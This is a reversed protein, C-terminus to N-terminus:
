GAGAAAAYRDLYAETVAARDFRQVRALAASRLRLQEAEDSLIGVLAATLAPVDGPPVWRAADGAAFVFGPLSSAVVACQAALAEVVTIGFSEGGINPACFVSSRTLLTRKHNESVRGHFAVGEPANPVEDAGIVHLSADPNAAAVEPWAELLIGLGKRPDNRGVFTVRAPEPAPPPFRAVDIGNPIIEADIGPLAGAAVPSVATIVQARDLVSRVAWRGLRYTRRVWPPPAAHVTAVIPSDVRLMAGLSVMPMLPEHVHVVDCEAVAAAVARGASPNLRIPTAAGNAPIVTTSGLLVAGDPGEEGPGVVLVEHGAEGLWEALSVVQNQVGGFEALDYPCVLGVRM